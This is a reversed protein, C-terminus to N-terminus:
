RLSQPELILQAQGSPSNFSGVWSGDPQPELDIQIVQDLGWAELGNVAFNALESPKTLRVVLDQTDQPIALSVNGVSLVPSQERVELRALGLDLRETTDPRVLAFRYTRAQAAIQKLLLDQRKAHWLDMLDTLRGDQVKNFADALDQQAAQDGGVAAVLAAAVATRIAPDTTASAILLMSQEGEFARRWLGPTPLNGAAVQAAWLDSLPHEPNTEILLPTVLPVSGTMAAYVRDALKRRDPPTLRALAHTLPLNSGVLAKAAAASTPPDSALALGVLGAARVHWGNQANVFPLVTAPTPASSSATQTIKVMLDVEPGPESDPTNASEASPIRYLTLSTWALDRLSKDTSALLKLLTQERDSLDIRPASPALSKAADALVTLTQRVLAPDAAGLLKADLWRRALSSDPAREVVKKIALERAPPAIKSWDVADVLKANIEDADDALSRTLLSAIVQDAPPPSPMTWVVAFAALASELAAADTGALRLLGGLAALRNPGDNDKAAQRLLDLAEPSPTPIAALAQILVHRAQADSGDLVRRALSAVAPRLESQDLLPSNILAQAALRLSLASPDSTLDQNLRELIADSPDRGLGELIDLALRWPQIASNSLDVSTTNSRVEFVALVVPPLPEDFETPLALIRKRLEAQERARARQAEIEQLRAQRDQNARAARDNSDGNGEALSPQIKLAYLENPDAVAAGPISRDMKWRARGQPTVTLSRTLRPIRTQGAPADPAGFAPNGDGAGPPPIMYALLKGGRARISTSGLVRPTASPTIRLPLVLLRKEPSPSLRWIGDQVDTPLTQGADLLRAMDIEFALADDPAAHLDPDNNQDLIDQGQVNIAMAVVVLLSM